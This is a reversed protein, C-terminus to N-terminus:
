SFSGLWGLLRASEVAALMRVGDLDVYPARLATLERRAALAAALSEEAERRLQAALRRELRLRGRDEVRAMADLRLRRYAKGPWEAGPRSTVFGLGLGPILLHELRGPEEASLCAVSDWGRSVAAAHLRALGPAGIGYADELEYVKPCLTEVTGFRVDTGQGTEASLFRYATRGAEGGQKRLERRIVGDIRRELRSADVSRRVAAESDVAVQRAALLTHHAQAELRAIGDMRHIIEDRLAKAATVDFSRGLDVVREVAGPYRAPPGGSLAACGLEPLLLGELAEPDLPDHFYEVAAGAAELSAGVQRLFTERGPGGELLMLDYLGGDALRGALSRKGGGSHVTLYDHTANAM